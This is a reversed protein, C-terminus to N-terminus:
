QCFVNRCQLPNGNGSATNGGLDTVGAVADIGFDGNDDARNGQLRTATARVDIGDDDAGTVVNGQVLTGATFAGIHIGDNENGPAAEGATVENDVLENDGGSELVLSAVSCSLLRNEAIRNRNGSVVLCSFFPPGGIVENRVVRAGSGSIAWQTGSSDAVVLGDTDVAHLGVEFTTGTMVVSRLINSEGGEIQVSSNGGGMSVNRIANFSANRLHLANGWQILGGNRITVDDHGASNDIGVGTTEKPPRGIAGSVGHGNLNIDVGDAGIVLGVESTECQLSKSLTLDHTIVDGCDVNATTFSKDPGCGPGGSQQSDEACFRYHYTSDRQLGAIGIVVTQPENPQVEFPWTMHTSESGYAATTGWQVWYQVDNGGTTSVFGGFLRAQTGTVSQPDGTLGTACGSCAFAAGAIGILALRRM